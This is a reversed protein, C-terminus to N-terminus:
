ISVNLAKEISAVPAEVDVLLRNPYRQTVTLGQSKAWDVVAQEDARSPAFRANWEEQSLYKHFQPSNKDQLERLLQEEAELHPPRLGFVVRLRQTPDYHGLLKATGNQVAPPTQKVQVQQAVAHDPWAVVVILLLTLVLLWIRSHAQSPRLVQRSCGKPKMFALFCSLSRRTTQM